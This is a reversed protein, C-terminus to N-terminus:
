FFVILICQKPLGHKKKQKKKKWAFFVPVLCNGLKRSLSRLLSKKFNNVLTISDTCYMKM